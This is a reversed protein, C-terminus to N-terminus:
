PHWKEPNIRFEPSQFNQCHKVINKSLAQCYKKGDTNRRGNTSKHGITAGGKRWYGLRKGEKRTENKNVSFM